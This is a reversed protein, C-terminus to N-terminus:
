EYENPATEVDNALAFCAWMVVIAVMSAASSGIALWGNNANDAQMLVVFFIAAVIGSVCGMLNYKTKDRQQTGNAPAQLTNM